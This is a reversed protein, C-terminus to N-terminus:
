ASAFSRAFIFSLMKCPRSLRVILARARKCVLYLEITCVNAPPSIPQVVHEDWTLQFAAQFLLIAASMHLWVCSFSAFVESLPQLFIYQVALILYRCPFVRYFVTFKHFVVFFYKYAAQLLKFAGARVYLDIKAYIWKERTCCLLHHM